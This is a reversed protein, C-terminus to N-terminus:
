EGSHDNKDGPLDTGALYPGTEVRANRKKSKAGALRNGLDVVPDEGLAAGVDASAKELLEPSTPSGYSPYGFAPRKRAVSEPSKTRNRKDLVYGLIPAVASAAFLPMVWKPRENGILVNWVKSATGALGKAPVSPPTGLSDPM